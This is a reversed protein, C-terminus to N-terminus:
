DVSDSGYEVDGGDSVFVGTGDGIVGDYVVDVFIVHGV